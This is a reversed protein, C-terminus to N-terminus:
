KKIQSLFFEYYKAAINKLNFNEEVCFRAKKGLENQLNGNLLIAEIASCIEQPDNDNVMIGSNNRIFEDFPKKNSVIVPLQCAMAELLAVSCADGHSLLLFLDSACYFLYPNDVEGKFYVQKRLGMQEVLSRLQSEYPGKGLM